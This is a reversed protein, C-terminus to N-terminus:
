PKFGAQTRLWENMGRKAMGQQSAGNGANATPITPKVSFLEPVLEKLKVFDCDGTRANLLGADQAALWALRLNSIKAAHGVEFFEAQATAMQVDGTLKDLQTRLESGDEAQKSLDRLRRELTRKEDRESKLASKLNDIHDDIAGQQETPLTKYWNDFDVPELTTAADPTEGVEAVVPAPSQENMEAAETM